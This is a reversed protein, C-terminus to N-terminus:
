FDFITKVSKNNSETAYALQYDSPPVIATELDAIEEFTNHRGMHEFFIQEREASYYISNITARKQKIVELPTGYKEM